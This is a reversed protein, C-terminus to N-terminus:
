RDVEAEPLAYMRELYDICVERVDQSLHPYRDHAGVSQRPLAPGTKDQCGYYEDLVQREETEYTGVTHRQIKPRDRLIAILAGIFVLMALLLALAIWANTDM